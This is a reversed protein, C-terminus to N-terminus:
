RSLMHTYGVILPHPSYDARRSRDDRMWGRREYFRRARRNAELVELQCRGAGAARSVDLAAAHLADAVGTGWFGPVVFLRELTGPKAVVAGALDSGTDAVLITHTVGHAAVLDRWKRREDEDPFRSVDPPFIHAYAALATDRYRCYLLGAEHGRVPRIGFGTVM